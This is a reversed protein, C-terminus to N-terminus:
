LQFSKGWKCSHITRFLQAYGLEEPYNLTNVEEDTLPANEIATYHIKRKLELGAIASLFANLGTGFGMEFVRIKEGPKSDLLLSLGAEIFVHMSEQMAGHISHYTVKLEPISVTHSGDATQIIEKKM